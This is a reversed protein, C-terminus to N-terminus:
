MIVGLLCAEGQIAVVPLRWTDPRGFPDFPPEHPGVISPM